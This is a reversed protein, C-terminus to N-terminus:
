DVRYRLFLMGDAELVWVLELDLPAPLGAGGVITLPDAGGVVLPSVTLFLEDVLGEALLAANLQRVARACCRARATSPACRACRGRRSPTRAPACWPRADPDSLLPIETPVDGSRSLVLALPEPELGRAVRQAIREPKRVLRGYGEARLPAPGPSCRTSV